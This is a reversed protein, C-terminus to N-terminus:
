ERMKQETAHVAGYRDHRGEFENETGASTEM